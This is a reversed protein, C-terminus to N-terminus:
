RQVAPRRPQGAGLRRDAGRSGTPRPRTSSSPRRVRLAWVAFVPAVPLLLWWTQGEATSTFFTWGSCWPPPRRSRRPRSRAQDKPRRREALAFATVLGIWGVLLEVHSFREDWFYAAERAAGEPDQGAIANAVLHIGHGDVYLIVSVLGVVLPAGAAGLTMLLGAATGDVAFPTLPDVAEAAPSELLAPLQHFVLV